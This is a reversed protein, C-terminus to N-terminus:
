EDEKGKKPARKCKCDQYMTTRGVPRVVARAKKRQTPLFCKVNCEGDGAYGLHKRIKHAPHRECKVVSCRAKM